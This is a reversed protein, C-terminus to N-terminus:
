SNITILIRKVDREFNHLNAINIRMCNQLNYINQQPDIVVDTLLNVSHRYIANGTNRVAM